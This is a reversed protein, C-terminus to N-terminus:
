VQWSVLPRSRVWMWGIAMMFGVFRSRPERKERNSPWIDLIDPPMFAIKINVVFLYIGTEVMAAFKFVVKLAIIVM